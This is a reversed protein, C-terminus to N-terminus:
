TPDYKPADIQVISRSLSPYTKAANLKELVEEAVVNNIKDM